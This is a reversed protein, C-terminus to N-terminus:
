LIWPQDEKPFYKFLPESSGKFIQHIIEDTIINNKHLAYINDVIIRKMDSMLVAYEKYTFPGVDKWDDNIEEM